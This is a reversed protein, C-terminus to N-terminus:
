NLLKLTRERLKKIRQIQKKDGLLEYLVILQSCIDLTDQYKAYFNKDQGIIEDLAKELFLVKMQPIDSSEALFMYASFRYEKEHNEVWTEAIKILADEDGLYYYLDKLATLVRNKEEACRSYLLAQNYHEIALYYRTNDNDGVGEKYYIDGLKMYTWFLITQVNVSYDEKAQLFKMFFSLVANYQTIKAEDSMYAEREQVIKYLRLFRIEQNQTGKEVNNLM